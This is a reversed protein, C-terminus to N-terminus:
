TLAARPVSSLRPAEPGARLEPGRPEKGPNEGERPKRRPPTGGGPPIEGEGHDSKGWTEGERRESPRDRLGPEEAVQAGSEM